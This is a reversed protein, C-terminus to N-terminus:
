SCRQWSDCFVTKFGDTRCHYAVLYSAPTLVSNNHPFFCKPLSASSLCVWSSRQLDSAESTYVALELGLRLAVYHSETEPFVVVFIFYFLFCISYFLCLLMLLICHGGSVGPLVPLPSQTSIATAFGGPVCNPTEECGSCM